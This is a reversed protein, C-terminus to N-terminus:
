SAGEREHDLRAFEGDRMDAVAGLPCTLTYIFASNKVEVRSIGGLLSPVMRTLLDDSFEELPAPALAATVDANDGLRGALEDDSNLTERWQFTFLDARANAGEGVVEGPRPAGAPTVSWIVEIQAAAKDWREMQVFRSALEWVILSIQQAGQAATEILPGSISLKSDPKAFLPEIQRRVIREMSASASDGQEMVTSTAIALSNIRGRLDRLFTEPHENLDAGPRTLGSVVQILNRSRQVADRATFSLRANAANLEQTRAEVKDELEDRAQSLAALTEELQAIVAEHKDPTPIRVLTPILRFLVLATALSVLGTALKVTGMLPYIAYWLTVISMAHTIGCLLIFAAFLSVLGRHTLDPRRRLVMIIAMPIAMYATFIMLDSGSWLLVLWPEWLLCMGHPMYQEYEFLAKM